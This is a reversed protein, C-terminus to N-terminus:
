LDRACFQTGHHYVTTQKNTQQKAVLGIELIM